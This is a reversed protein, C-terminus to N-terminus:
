IIEVKGNVLEKFKEADEETGVISGYHIPISVEAGIKNAADAAEEPNMTYAGSIPLMAVDANINDMEPILDSDGAHYVRKGGITVIYGVWRNEKPHADKGINYAPVAEIVIGDVDMKQGPEILKVDAVRTLVTSLKSQCDPVTVIVTNPKVLKQIDEISCHDYHSHTILIIDAKDNDGIKFPDIYVTKEAELKVSSHYTREITVNGIKVQRVEQATHASCGVMVIILALLIAWKM